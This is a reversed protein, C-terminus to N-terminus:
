FWSRLKGALKRLSGAEAPQDSSPGSTQPHFGILREFEAEDLPRNPNAIRKV